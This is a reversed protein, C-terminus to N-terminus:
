RNRDGDGGAGRRLEGFNESFIVDERNFSLSRAPSKSLDVVLGDLIDVIVEDSNRVGAAKLGGGVTTLLTQGYPSKLEM